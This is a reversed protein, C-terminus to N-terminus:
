KHFVEAIMCRISGGGFKEITFIPMYLLKGFTELQQKQEASFANHAQESMVILTKENKDKLELINGCFQHMQAETISIITKNTFKLSQIVQKKENMDQISDLCIVCFDMGLAMMVNTHYIALRQQEVEQTAHFVIPKYGNDECFIHLLSEHARESISCYALKNERDLILVGTGELFIEQEAYLTYDKITKFPIGRKDLIGLHGLFIERQRNAAFMPYLIAKDGHFSIINNPFLSDPTDFKGSDEVVIVQVGAIELTKVANDFEAQALLNTNNSVTETDQFYNNVATEENARFAAPRVMLICNTSQAM